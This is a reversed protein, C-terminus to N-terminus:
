AEELRIRNLDSLKRYNSLLLSSSTQRMEDNVEVVSKFELRNTMRGPVGILLYQSKTGRHKLFRYLEEIM